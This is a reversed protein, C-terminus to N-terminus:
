TTTAPQQQRLTDKGLTRSLRSIADTSIVPRAHPKRPSTKPESRSARDDSKSPVHSHSGSTRAVNLPHFPLDELRSMSASGRGSAQRPRKERQSIPLSPTTELSPAAWISSELGVRPKKTVTSVEGGQAANQLPVDGTDKPPPDAIVPAPADQTQTNSSVLAQPVATASITQQVVVPEPSPVKPKVAWDDLDPLSDPDDEEDAWNLSMTFRSEISSTHAHGNIALERVRSVLSEADVAAGAIHPPLEKERRPASTDASVVSEPATANTSGRSRVGQKKSPKRKGDGEPLAQEHTEANDNEIPKSGPFRFSGRGRGRARGPRGRVAGRGRGTALNPGIDGSTNSM